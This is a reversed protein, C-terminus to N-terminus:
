PCRLPRPKEVFAESAVAFPAERRADPVLNEYAMRPPTASRADSGVQCQRM